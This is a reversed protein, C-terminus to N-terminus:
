AHAPRRRRVLLALCAGALTAATAPEPVAAFVTPNNSFVLQGNANLGFAGVLTGDGTGPLLEWVDLVSYGNTGDYIAPTSPISGLSIRVSPTFRRFSQGVVIDEQVSWSGGATADIVTSFASNATASGLSLSGPPGSYMTTIAGSTNQQGSASGRQWPASPTGPTLEPSSAWLTRAPIGNFTSAGTAGVIGFSLDNREDWNAGYTSVLDLPSLRTVVFTTNPALGTYNTSPGLNVELNVGSGQGGDARFGLVFDAATSVTIARASGAFTVVCALGALLPLNYTYKNM